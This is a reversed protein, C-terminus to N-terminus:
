PLTITFTCGSGKNNTASISGNHLDVITAAISLGIGYGETASETRSQDARYFREFIRDIDTDKIGIGADKITIKNRRSSSDTAVSITSKGPSYNIANDLLITIAEVLATQNMEVATDDSPSYAISQKKLKAKKVSRDIALDVTDNLSEPKKVLQKEGLHALQLMGETLNTLKDLEEINSELQRRAHKLTLKPEGLTVETELRMATIPTRLEHSADATFRSQAEHLKEIPRLTKRALLYSASAGSVFIVLNLLLLSSRLRTQAEQLDNSRDQKIIDLSEKSNGLIRKERTTIPRNINKDLEQSSVRYLGASFLLSICMIIILYVSTLRLSANQFLSRNEKM